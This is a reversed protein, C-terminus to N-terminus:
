GLRRLIGAEQAADQFARAAAVSEAKGRLSNMCARKAIAFSRGGKVPWCTMLAELAERSNNVSKFHDRGDVAIEIPIQWIEKLTLAEQMWIVSFHQVTFRTGLTPGQDSLPESAEEM